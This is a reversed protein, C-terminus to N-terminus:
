LYHRIATVYTTSTRIPREWREKTFSETRHNRLTLATALPEYSEAIKTSGKEGAKTVKASLNLVASSIHKDIMESDHADPNASMVKNM